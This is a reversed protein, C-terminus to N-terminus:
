TRAYEGEMFTAFTKGSDSSNEIMFRIRDSAVLEMHYRSRQPGDGPQEFSLVQGQWQGRAPAPPVHGMSDIWYWTYTDQEEDWGYIGHGRYTVKGDREQTYDQIVFFGDIDVRMQYRGKAKGGPSWPSPHMTEEGLWTGALQHLKEHQKGLKRMEMVVESECRITAARGFFDLSVDTSARDVFHRAATPRPQREPM